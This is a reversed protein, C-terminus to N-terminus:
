PRQRGLGLLDNLYRFSVRATEIPDDPNDHEVFAHRLEDGAARFVADFDITGSGVDVMQGATNRDKVHFSTVREGYRALYDLPDAGADAMWFIDMQWDVLDPDTHDLLVEMPVAGDTPRLEWDHNHYGFRLGAARAAEGAGNFEDAIRRLSNADRENGPLSPVVILSHGLEVAEALTGEWDSRVAGMGYHGSAARLGEADLMSRLDGASLGYTGAFEVEGYGISALEALIPAPENDIISRLTYLQIGVDDLAGPGPKSVKSHSDPTDKGLGRSTAAASRGDREAGGDFGSGSRGVAGFAAAPLLAGGTVAIFDRRDM